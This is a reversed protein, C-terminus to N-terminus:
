RSGKMRINLDTTCLGRPRVSFQLKTHVCLVDLRAIYRVQNFITTMIVRRHARTSGTDSRSYSSPSLCKCVGIGLLAVTIRCITLLVPHMAFAQAIFLQSFFFIEEKTLSDFKTAFTQVCVNWKQRPFTANCVHKSLNKCLMHAGKFGFNRLVSFHRMDRIYKYTCLSYYKMM